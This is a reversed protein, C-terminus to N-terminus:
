HADGDQRELSVVLDGNERPSVRIAYDFGVGALEEATVTVTRGQARQLVTAFVHQLRRASRLEREREEASARREEFRGRSKAEGM